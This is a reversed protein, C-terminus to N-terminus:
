KHCHECTGDPQRLKGCFECPFMITRKSVTKQKISSKHFSGYNKLFSPFFFKQIKIRFEDKFFGDVENQWEDIPPIEFLIEGTEDDPYSWHEECHLTLLRMLAPYGLPDRRGTNNNYASCWYNVREKKWHLPKPAPEENQLLRLESMENEM